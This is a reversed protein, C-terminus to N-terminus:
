PFSRGSLMSEFLVLVHVLFIASVSLFARTAFASSSCPREETDLVTIAGDTGLLWPEVVAVVGTSRMCSDVLQVKTTTMPLCFVVISTAFPTVCGEPWHRLYTDPSGQRGGYRFFYFISLIHVIYKFYMRM